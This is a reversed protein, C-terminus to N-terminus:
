RPSLRLWATHGSGCLVEVRLPHEVGKDLATFLPTLGDAALPDPDPWSATAEPDFGGGGEVAALGLAGRAMTAAPSEVLFASMSPQPTTGVADFVRKAAAGVVDLVLVLAIDVEGSAVLSAAESIAALGSARGSAIALQDGMWGNAIAVEGLVMNALTYAFLRPNARELGVDIIQGYYLLDTELCGLGTGVILAHSREAFSSASLDATALLRQTAVLGALCLEDLREPRAVLARAEAVLDDRVPVGRWRATIM